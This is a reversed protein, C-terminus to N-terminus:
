LATHAADTKLVFEFPLVIQELAHRLRRRINIQPTVAAARQTIPRYAYLAFVQGCHRLLQRLDFQVCVFLQALDTRDFDIAIHHRHQLHFQGRSAGHHECRM